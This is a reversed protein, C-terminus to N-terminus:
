GWSVGVPESLLGFGSEPGPPTRHQQPPRPAGGALAPGAALTGPSPAAWRLGPVHLAGYVAEFPADAGSAGQGGRREM